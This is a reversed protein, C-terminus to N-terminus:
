FLYRYISFDPKQKRYAPGPYLGHMQTFDSVWQTGNFMAMHGHGRATIPQIVVVDGTVPFTSAVITFKCMELSPGYDKASRRRVLQLGGAEIASRVFEACRSVSHPRAHSNLFEVAIDKNWM